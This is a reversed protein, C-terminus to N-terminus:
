TAKAPPKPRAESGGQLRRLYKKFRRQLFQRHTLVAALLALLVCLVAATVYFIM